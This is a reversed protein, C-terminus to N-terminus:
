ADSRRGFQLVVKQPAGRAIQRLAPADADEVPGIVFFHQDDAHMRLDQAAFREGFRRVVVLGEPALTVARDLTQLPMQVGVAGADDFEEEVEGLLLLALAKERADVLRFLVPFEAEGVDLLALVPLFIM